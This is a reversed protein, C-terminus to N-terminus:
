RDSVALPQTEVRSPSGAIAIQSRFALWLGAGIEAAAAARTVDPHRAFWDVSERWWNPGGRWILCHRSPRLLGLVGDGIMLMGASEAIRNTTIETTM